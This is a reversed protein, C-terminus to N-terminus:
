ERKLREVRGYQEATEKGLQRKKLRLCGDLEWGVHKREASETTWELVDLKWSRV